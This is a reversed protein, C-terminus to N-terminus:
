PSPPRRVPAVPADTGARDDVAQAQEPAQPSPDTERVARKFGSLAKGLGEGITPLKGVGFIILGIVLFLLIESAGMTGFMSM